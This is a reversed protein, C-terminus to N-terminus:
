AAGAGRCAPPTDVTGLDDGDGRWPAREPWYSCGCEGDEDAPHGCSALGRHARDNEQEMLDCAHRAGAYFAEAVLEEALETADGWTDDCQYAREILAALVAPRHETTATM